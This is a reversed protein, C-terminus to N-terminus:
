GAYLHPAPAHLNESLMKSKQTEFALVPHRDDNPQDCNENEEDPLSAVPDSPLREPGGHVFLDASMKKTTRQILHYRKNATGKFL